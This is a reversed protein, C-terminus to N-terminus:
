NLNNLTPFENEFFLIGIQDIQIDLTNEGYFTDLIESIQKLMEIAQKATLKDLDKIM